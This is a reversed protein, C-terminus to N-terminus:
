VDAESRWASKVRDYHLALWQLAIITKGNVIRGADLMALAEEVPMVHVKIDEGEEELGHM